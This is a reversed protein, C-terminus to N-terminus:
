NNYFADCNNNHCTNDDKYLIWAKNLSFKTKCKPCRYREGYEIQLKALADTVDPKKGYVGILTPILMLLMMLPYQLSRLDKAWDSLHVVLLVVGIGITFYLRPKINKIQSKKNIKLIDARYDDYVKKLLNFETSFDRKEDLLMQEIDDIIKITNLSYANNENSSGLLVIDEKVIKKTAIQRGNVYTGNKSELDELTIVGNNYTLKAHKRGVLNYEEGVKIDINGKVDRGIIIEM